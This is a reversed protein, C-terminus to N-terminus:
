VTQLLMESIDSSVTTNSLRLSKLRSLPSRLMAEIYQAGVDSFPVDFLDLMELSQNHSLAATLYEIGADGFYNIGLNLVKLHKNDQLAM